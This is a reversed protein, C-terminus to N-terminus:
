SYSLLGCVSVTLHRCRPSPQPRMEAEVGSGVATHGGKEPSECVCARTFAASAVSARFTASGNM